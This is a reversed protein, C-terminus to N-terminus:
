GRRVAPRVSLGHRERDLGGCERHIRRAVGWASSPAAKTCSSASRMRGPAPVSTSPWATPRSMGASCCGSRIGGIMDDGLDSVIEVLDRSEKALEAASLLRYGGPLFTAGPRYTEEADFDAAGNNVLLLRRLDAPLAV